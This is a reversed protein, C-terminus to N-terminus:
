LNSLYFNAFRHSSDLKTSCPGSLSSPGDPREAKIRKGLSQLNTAAKTRNEDQKSDSLPHETEIRRETASPYKRKRATSREPQHDGKVCGSVDDEEKKRSKKASLLKEAFPLQHRTLQHNTNLHHYQGKRTEFYRVGAVSDEAEDYPKKYFKKWSLPGSRPIYDTRNLEHTVPRKM